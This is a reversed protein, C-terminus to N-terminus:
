TARAGAARLEDTLAELAEPRGHLQAPTNQLSAARWAGTELVAVLLQVAHRNPMVDTGGPPVMGVVAHLLASEAGIRRVGRVIWVYRAVQHDAFVAALQEAIEGRGHMESGDFGVVIAEDTFCSAYADADQRNWADLIAGYLREVGEAGSSATM